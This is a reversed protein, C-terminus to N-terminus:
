HRNVSRSVLSARTELHLDNIRGVQCDWGRGDNLRLTLQANEQMVAWLDIDGAVKIDARAEESQIFEPGYDSGEIPGFGYVVAGVCLEGHLLESEGTISQIIRLSKALGSAERRRVTDHSISRVFGAGQLVLFYPLGQTKLLEPVSVM